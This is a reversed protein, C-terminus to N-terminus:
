HSLLGLKHAVYSQGKGVMSGIQGQTLGRQRLAEFAGAEELATLAERQVNEVLALEFAADPTVDRVIADIETMGALRAARQRREGAVLEFRDGVPRVMIPELLGKEKISAALEEIGTFRRRPQTSSSDILELRLRRVKM